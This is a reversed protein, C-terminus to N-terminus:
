ANSICANPFTAAFTIIDDAYQASIRGHHREVIAKAVSLGIGSGGTERSRSADARYFRDFYKPILAPDLGPCPNSVTLVANKGRLVLGLRITGKESGYKVANDLLITVLRYISEQLGRMEIGPAVDTELTKDRATVLPEFSSAVDQVVDSVSFRVAEGEPLDEEAAAMEVLNRILHNLRGVQTKTSELWENEGINLELIGTNAAIITLPTKLEHSADTVFQRQRQANEVFPGMARKSLLLLLIFVIAICALAVFSTVWLVNMLTQIQLFCDMVILMKGSETEFVGYRYHGLFGSSKGSELIERVCREANVRDLAAIHELDVTEVNDGRDLTIIFYRTEFPTEETLRFGGGSYPTVPDTPSPFSGGNRYLVGIASDARDRLALYDWGNIAAFLVLLTGVLSLMAIAIFKRRLSKIM